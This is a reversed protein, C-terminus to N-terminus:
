GLHNAQEREVLATVQQADHEARRDVERQQREVHGDEADGPEVEVRAGGGAPERREDVDAEEEGEEAAETVDGLGGGGSGGGSGDKTGSSGHGAMTGGNTM